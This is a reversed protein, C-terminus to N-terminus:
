FKYGKVANAMLAAAIYHMNEIANFTRSNLHCFLKDDVEEGRPCTHFFLWSCCTNRQIDEISFKFLEIKDRHKTTPGAIVVCTNKLVDNKDSCQKVETASQATLEESSKYLLPSVPCKECCCKFKFNAGLMPCLLLYSNLIPHPPGMYSVNVCRMSGFEEIIAMITALSQISAHTRSRMCIVPVLSKEAFRQVCMHTTTSVFIVDSMFSFISGNYDHDWVVRDTINVDFAGLLTAAKSVAMNLIPENVEQLIMVKTNKLVDIRKQHTNRYKCKLNIASTIVDLVMEATWQKFCILHQPKPCPKCCQQLRFQQVMPLTKNFCEFLKM